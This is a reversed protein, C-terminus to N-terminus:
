ARQNCRGASFRLRTVGIKNVEAALKRVELDAAANIRKVDLMMSHSDRHRRDLEFLDEKVQWEFLGCNTTPIAVSNESQLVAGEECREQGGFTALRRRCVTETPKGQGGFRPGICLSRCVDHPLMDAKVELMSVKAAKMEAQVGLMSALHDLARDSGDGAQMVKLTQAHDQPQLM